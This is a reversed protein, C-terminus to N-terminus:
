THACDIRCMPAAQGHEACTAAAAASHSPSCFGNGGHEINATRAQRASSCYPARHSCPEACRKNCVLRQHVRARVTSPRMATASFDTNAGRSHRMRTTTHIASTHTSSSQSARARRSSRRPHSRRTLVPSPRASASRPQTPDSPALPPMGSQTPDFCCAVCQCATYTHTYHIHMTHTHPLPHKSCVSFAKGSAVMRLYAMGESGGKVASTGPREGLGWERSPTGPLLLSGEHRPIDPQWRGHAHHASPTRVAAACVPRLGRGNGGGGHRLRPHRRGARRGDEPPLALHHMGAQVGHRWGRHRGPPCPRGRQCLPPAAAPQEPAPPPSRGRGGTLRSPPTHSAPAFAAIPHPIHHHTARTLTPSLAAHRWLRLLAGHCCGGWVSADAARWGIVHWAGARRGSRVKYWRRRRLDGGRRVHSIYGGRAEEQPSRAEGRKPWEGGGTGELRRTDWWSLGDDVRRRAVPRRAAPPARTRRWRGGEWGPSLHSALGRAAAGGEDGVGWGSDEWGDARGGEGEPRGERCSHGSEDAGLAGGHRHRWMQIATRRDPSGSSAARSSLDRPHAAPHPPAGAPGSRTGNSPEVAWSKTMPVARSVGAGEWSGRGAPGRTPIGAGARRAYPTAPADWQAAWPEAHAMHACGGAHSRGVAHAAEERRGGGFGDERLGKGDGEGGAWGNDGGGWGDGADRSGGDGGRIGLSRELRRLAARAPAAPSVAAGTATAAHGLVQAMRASVLGISGRCVSACPPPAICAEGFGAGCVCASGAGPVAGLAADARGPPSTCLGGIGRRLDCLSDAHPMKNSHLSHSRYASDAVYRSQAHQGGSGLVSRWPLDMASSSDRMAGDRAMGASSVGGGAVGDFGRMAGGICRSAAGAYAGHPGGVLYEGGRGRGLCNGRRVAGAEDQQATGPQPPTPRTATGGRTGLFPTEPVSCGSIGRCARLPSTTRPPPSVGARAADTVDAMSPMAPPAPPWDGLVPISPAPPRDRESSQGSSPPQTRQGSPIFAPAPSAPPQGAPAQDAPQPASSGPPQHTPPQHTPPPDPPPDTPPKDVLQQAHGGRALSRLEALQEHPRGYRLRRELAEYHERRQAAVDTPHWSSPAAPAGAWVQPPSAGFPRSPSGYERPAFRDGRGDGAGCFGDYRSRPPTLERDRPGAGGNEEEEREWAERRMPLRMRATFLSSRGVDGAEALRARQAGLASRPTQPVWVDQQLAPGPPPPPAVRRADGWASLESLLQHSRRAAGLREGAPTRQVLPAAEVAAGQIAAAVCRSRGEALSAFGAPMDQPLSTLFPVDAAPPGAALHALPSRLFHSSGTFAHEHPASTPKFRGSPEAM